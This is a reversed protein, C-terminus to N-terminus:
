FATFNNNVKPAKKIQLIASLKVNIYSFTKTKNSLKSFNEYKKPIFDPFSSYYIFIKIM